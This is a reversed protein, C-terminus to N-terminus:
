FFSEDNQLATVTYYVSPGEGNDMRECMMLVVKGRVVKNNLISLDLWNGFKKKKIPTHDLTMELPTKRKKHSDNKNKGDRESWKADM